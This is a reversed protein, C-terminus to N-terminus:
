EIFSKINREYNRPHFGAVPTAPSNKIGDKGTHFIDSILYGTCSARIINDTIINNKTYLMAIGYDKASTIHNDKIICSMIPEDLTGEVYIGCGSIARILAQIYNNTITNHGAFVEIIHHNRSTSTIVNGNVVNKAGALVVSRGCITHTSLIKNGTITCFESNIYLSVCKGGWEAVCNNGHFIM